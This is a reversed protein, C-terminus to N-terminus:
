KVAFPVWRALSDPSSRRRDNYDDNTFVPDFEDMNIVQGTQRYHKQKVAQAIKVRHLKSRMMQILM